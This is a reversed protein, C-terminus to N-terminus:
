DVVNDVINEHIEKVLKCANFKIRYRTLTSGYMIPKITPPVTFVHIGQIVQLFLHNMADYKQESIVKIPQYVPSEHPCSHMM